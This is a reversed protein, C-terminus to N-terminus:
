RGKSRKRPPKGAATARKWPKVAKKSATAVFPKAFARLGAAEPSNLFADLARQDDDLMQQVRARIDAEIKATDTM